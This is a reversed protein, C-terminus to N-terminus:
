LRVRGITRSGGYNQVLKFTLTTKGDGIPKQTLFTAWHSKGFQPNIAWGTQLDDDIAGPVEWKKQSFDAKAGHLKIPVQKGSETTQASVDLESLIFNPRKADGRGPGKGPLSEHTLAELKFGTIEQLDTEVRITYTTMKPNEGGVLVSQDDLIEGTAKGTAEFSAVDLVHWTPLKDLNAAFRKEWEPKM